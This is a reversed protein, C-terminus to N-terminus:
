LGWASAAAKHKALDKYHQALTARWSEPNWIQLTPGRGVITAQGDIGAHERLYEPILVRGMTDPVATVAGALVMHCYAEVDEDSQPLQRIKANLADWGDLTYIEVFYGLGRTIKMGRSLADRFSSPITLRGKADLSHTYEGSFQPASSPAGQEVVGTQGQASPEM